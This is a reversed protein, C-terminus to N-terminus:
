EVLPYHERQLASSKAQLGSVGKNLGLSFINANKHFCKYNKWNGIKVM